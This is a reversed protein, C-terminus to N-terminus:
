IELANALSAPKLIKMSLPSSLNRYYAWCQVENFDGKPM